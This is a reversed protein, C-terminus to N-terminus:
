RGLMAIIRSVLKGEISLMVADSYQHKLLEPKVNDVSPIDLYMDIVAHASPCLHRIKKLEDQLIHLVSNMVPQPRDKRYLMIAAIISAVGVHIKNLDSMDEM